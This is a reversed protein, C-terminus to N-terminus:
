RMLYVILDGVAHDSLDGGSTGLISISSVGFAVEHHYHHPPYFSVVGMVPFAMSKGDMELVWRLPPIVYLSGTKM